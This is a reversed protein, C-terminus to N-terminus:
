RVMAAREHALQVAAEIQRKMLARTGFHDAYMKDSMQVAADWRQRYAPDNPDQPTPGVAEVFKQTIADATAREDAITAKADASRPATRAARVDIAAVSANHAYIAPYVPRTFSSSPATNAASSPMTGESGQTVNGNGAPGTNRNEIASSPEIEVPGSTAFSATGSKAAAAAPTLPSPM